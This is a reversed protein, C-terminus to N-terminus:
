SWEKWLRGFWALLAQAIGSGRRRGCGGVNRIGGDFYGGVMHYLAPSFVGNERPSIDHDLILILGQTRVFYFDVIFGTYTLRPTM